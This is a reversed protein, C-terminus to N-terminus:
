PEQLPRIATAVDIMTSIDYMNADCFRFTTIGNPLLVWHNGGFGTSFPIRHVHGDEDCYPHSDFALHYTADGCANSSGTPLGIVDTEFLAEATGGAHLLQRGQHRGGNHLLMSLKALDDVNTYLGYGFPPLGISGDSEVTRMIPAHFIGIPEYVEALVMEWIEADPGERSKLLSDMAASLVFTSISCYRAIEGPGWPYNGYSFAVDMKERRSGARLFSMFKPEDENGQMVNPEVREPMHDGIGTAMNLADAFTVSEWGDHAATITVYDAVKFDFVDDGYKETLRLLATLAGM